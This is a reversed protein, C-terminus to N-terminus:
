KNYKKNKQVKDKVIPDIYEMAKPEVNNFDLIIDGLKIDASIIHEKPMDFIYFLYNWYFGNPQFVKGDINWV